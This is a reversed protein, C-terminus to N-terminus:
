FTIPDAHHSLPPRTVALEQCKLRHDIDGLPIQETLACPVLVILEEEPEPFGKGYAHDHAHTRTHTQCIHGVPTQVPHVGFQVQDAAHIQVAGVAPRM